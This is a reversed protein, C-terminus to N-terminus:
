DRSKRVIEKFYKDSLHNEKWFQDFYDDVVNKLLASKKSFKPNHEYVYEILQNVTMRNFEEKIQIVTQKYEDSLHSWVSSAHSFGQPTLSIGNGTSIFGTETGTNLDIALDKSFPGYYLPIFQYKNKIERASGRRLNM